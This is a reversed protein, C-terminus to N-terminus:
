VVGRGIEAAIGHKRARELAFAGPNNSVVIAIRAPLTGREINDIISQLNSGSGSVLVGLNVIRAM